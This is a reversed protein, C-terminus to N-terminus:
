WLWGCWLMVVVLRVVVDGGTAVAAEVQQSWRSWWKFTAAHLRIWCLERGKPLVVLQSGVFLSETGVV